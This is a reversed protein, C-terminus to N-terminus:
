SHDNRKLVLLNDYDEKNLLANDEEWFHPLNKEVLPKFLSYVEKIEKQLEEIRSKVKQLAVDKNITRQVSHIMQFRDIIKFARLAEDSSFKLFKIITQAKPVLDKHMMYLKENAKRYKELSSYIYAKKAELRKLEGWFKTVEISILDWISHQASQLVLKGKLIDKLKTNNEQYEKNAKEM